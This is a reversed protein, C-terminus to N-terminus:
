IQQINPYKQDVFRTHCDGFGDIRYLGHWSSLGSPGIEIWLVPCGAQGGNLRVGLRYRPDGSSHTKRVTSKHTAHALSANGNPGQVSSYGFGFSGFFRLFGLVDSTPSMELGGSELKM